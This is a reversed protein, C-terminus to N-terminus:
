IIVNDGGASPNFNIVGPLTLTAGVVTGNAAKM